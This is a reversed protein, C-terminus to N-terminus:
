AAKGKSAGKADATDAEASTPLVKTALAACAFPNAGTPKRVTVPKVIQCGFRAWVKLPTQNDQFGSILVKGTSDAVVASPDMAYRIDQRVGIFCYNWDGTFFDPFTGGVSGFSSYAIPVGYLTPQTLDGAQTTGLLLEGTNARVGRLVSRVVLDAAHGDVMLGQGEVAAMAQNVTDVADTGPAIKAAIADIGGVPYTAPAGTGFLVANDLAQGIAEAIRPRVYGWLNISSDELYQDPIATIAAIEEAHLTATTLAIDTWPKRGGAGTVFGATPLTSPIPMETISTGMPILNAIQLVASARVAEEIIQVSFEPPIVGSFDLPPAYPTTM